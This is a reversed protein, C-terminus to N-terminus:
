RMFQSVVTAESHVVLWDGVELDEYPRDWAEGTPHVLIEFGMPEGTYGTRAVTVDFM